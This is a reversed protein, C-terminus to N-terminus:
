RRNELIWRSPPKGKVRIRTSAGKPKGGGWTALGARVMDHLIDDGSPILKIPVLRAVVKGWKAIDVMQGEKVLDLYYSLSNKLDRVGTKLM